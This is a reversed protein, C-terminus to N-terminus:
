LSISVWLTIMDMCNISVFVLSVEYNNGDDGSRGVLAEVFASGDNGTPVCM